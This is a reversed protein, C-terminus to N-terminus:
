AIRFDKRIVTFMLTAAHRKAIAAMTFINRYYPPSLSLERREKKFDHIGPVLGPM